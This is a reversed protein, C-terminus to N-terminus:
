HRGQAEASPLASQILSLDVLQFDKLVKEDLVPRTESKEIAFLAQEIVELSLMDTKDERDTTIMVSRYPTEWPKVSGALPHTLIRYGSHVLDRVRELLDRHSDEAYYSVAISSELAERILPNNTVVKYTKESM